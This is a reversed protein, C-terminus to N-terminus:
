ICVGLSCVAHHLTFSVLPTCINNSRQVCTDSNIFTKPTLPCVVNDQPNSRSARELPFRSGAAYSEVASPSEVTNEVFKMRSEFKYYTIAGSEGDTIGM